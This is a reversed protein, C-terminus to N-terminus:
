PLHRRFETPTRRLFCVKIQGEPVDKPQKGHTLMQQHWYSPTTVNRHGVLNSVVVKSIGASGAAKTPAQKTAAANSQKTSKKVGGVPAATAIRGTRRRTSRRRGGAARQTSVIEDLSQDLKGSM